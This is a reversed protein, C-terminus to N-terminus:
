LKMRVSSLLNSNLVAYDDLDPLYRKQVIYTMSLGVERMFQIEFPTFPVNMKKGHAADHRAKDLVTLKQMDLPRLRWAKDPKCVEMLREVKNPVSINATRNAEKAVLSTVVAEYRGKIERLSVEQEQVFPEWDKPNSKCTLKLLSFLYSDLLAHSFVLCAAAISNEALKVRRGAWRRSIEEKSLTKESTPFDKFIMRRAEDEMRSQTNGLGDRVVYHFTAVEDFGFLFDMFLNVIEGRSVTM